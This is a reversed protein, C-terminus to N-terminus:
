APVEAPMTATAKRHEHFSLIQLENSLDVRRVDVGEPVQLVAPAFNLISRVGAAVLRDCVDQAATAPTAIVGISVRQERVIDPLEDLSRVPLGAVVEGTRADDADVLAAICFGRGDFGGYGALASGLNGVGVLVVAWRRGLGLAASIHFVLEQVDYGVGRTGYSGLHSLDKRLKASGVGSAAALAESSVTRRGADGLARLARLYVPLRAVTAEPVGVRAAGGGRAARGARPPLVRAAATLQRGAPVAQTTM